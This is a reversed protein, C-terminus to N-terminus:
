KIPKDQACINYSYTATLVFDLVRFTFDAAWVPGVEIWATLVTHPMEGGGWPVADSEGEDVKFQLGVLFAGIVVNLDEIASVDVAVAQPPVTPAFQWM